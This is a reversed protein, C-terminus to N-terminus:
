VRNTIAAKLVFEPTCQGPELRNDPYSIRFELRCYDM